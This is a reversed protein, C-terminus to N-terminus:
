LTLRPMNGSLEREMEILLLDGSMRGAQLGSHGHDYNYDALPPILECKRLQSLNSFLALDTAVHCVVMPAVTHIVM